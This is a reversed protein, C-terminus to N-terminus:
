KQSFISTQRRMKLLDSFRKREEEGPDELEGVDDEDEANEALDFSKAPSTSPELDRL